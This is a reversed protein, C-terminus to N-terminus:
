AADAIGPIAKVGKEIKGICNACRAGKVSIEFLSSGSKDHRIYRALGVSPARALNLAGM